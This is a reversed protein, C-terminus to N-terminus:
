RFFSVLKDSSHRRLIGETQLYDRHSATNKGMNAVISQSIAYYLIIISTSRPCSVTEHECFFFVQESFEGYDPIVEPAALNSSYDYFSINWSKRDKTRSDFMMINYETRGILFDSPNSNSPCSQQDQFVSCGNVSITGKKNGTLRDISLWTDVKRGTYLIGDSSKCPSAAVLEPITFPLKKLPAKDGGLMYISGDKPDPLFAPLADDAFPSRVAPPQDDLSWLIQGDLKNLAVLTGDLTSALVTAAPALGSSEPRPEHDSELHLELNLSKTDSEGTGSVSCALAIALCWVLMDCKM